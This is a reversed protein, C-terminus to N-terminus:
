NGTNVTYQGKGYLLDCVQQAKERNKTRFYTRGNLANRIWYGNREVINGDRDPYEIYVGISLIKKFGGTMVFDLLKDQM